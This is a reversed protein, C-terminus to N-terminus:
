RTSLKMDGRPYGGMGARMPTELVSCQCSSEPGGAGTATAQDKVAQEGRVVSAKAAMTRHQGSSPVRLQPQQVCDAKVLSCWRVREAEVSSPHKQTQERNLTLGLFGAAFRDPLPATDSDFCPQPLRQAGEKSCCTSPSRQKVRSNPPRHDAEPTHPQTSATRTLTLTHSPSRTSEM